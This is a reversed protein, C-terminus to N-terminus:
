RAGLYFRAHQLLEGFDKSMRWAEAVVGSDAPLRQGTAVLAAGEAEVQKELRKVADM